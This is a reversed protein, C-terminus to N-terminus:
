RAGGFGLVRRDEALVVLWGDAAVPTARVRGGVDARWAEDGTSLEFAYLREQLDGVYAMGGCILPASGVGGVTRSRWLLAGDAGSLCLLEGGSTGAVVMGRAIAAGSYLPAGAEFTWVSKGTAADFASITGDLACAFVMGEGTSTPAFVPGGAPSRWLLTGTVVDLAIVEGADTGAFVRMGDGSPSSRIGPRGRSEPLSYTWAEKGSATDFASVSGDIGAAIIRGGSALLSSEIDATRATWETRGSRLNFCVLNDGDGSLGAYMRAGSVVPTGFIASGFDYSGTERGTRIDIARVEGTLTGAFVTSEAVAVSAPGFGSGADYEWRPALPATLSSSSANTRGAGGGYMGWADGPRPSTLLLKNAACGSLLAAAPLLAAALAALAAISAASRAPGPSAPPRLSPAHPPPPPIAAPRKM